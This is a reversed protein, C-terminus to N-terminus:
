ARREVILVSESELGVVKVPAFAPIPGGTSVARVVRRRGQVTLQVQGQGATRDPITLYVQATSGICTSLDFRPTSSLRRTMYALGSALLMMAFGFGVALLASLPGSLEWDVRAALGMWGAGMFFAMISLLSFLKFVGTSDSHPADVDSGDGGDQGFMAMVLRILFVLTAVCAIIFYITADTFKDLFEPM